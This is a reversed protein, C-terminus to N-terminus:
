TRKSKSGGIRGAVRPDVKGHAFKHGKGKSGGKKGIRSYYDEGYKAKITKAVKSGYDPTRSARAEELQDLKRRSLRFM